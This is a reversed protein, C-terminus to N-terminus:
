SDLFSLDLPCFQSAWPWMSSLSSWKPRLGSNKEKHLSYHTFCSLVLIPPSVKCSFFFLIQRVPSTSKRPNNQSNLRSHTKTKAGSAEAGRGGILAEGAPTNEFMIFQRPWGRRRAMGLPAPGRGRPWGADGASRSAAHTGAYVSDSSSCKRQGLPPVVFWRSPRTWEMSPLASLLPPHQLTPLFKKQHGPAQIAGVPSRLSQPTEQLFPNLQLSHQPCAQHELWQGKPVPLAKSNM